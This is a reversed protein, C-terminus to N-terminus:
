PATNANRVDDTSVYDLQPSALHALKFVYAPLDSRATEYWSIATGSCTPIFVANRRGKLNLRVKLLAVTM